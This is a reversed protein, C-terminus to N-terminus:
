IGSFDPARITVADRWLQGERGVNQYQSIRASYLTFQATAQDAQSILPAVASINVGSDMLLLLSAGAFLRGVRMECNRDTLVYQSRSGFDTGTTHYLFKEYTDEIDVEVNEAFALLASTGGQWVYLSLENWVYPERSDAM